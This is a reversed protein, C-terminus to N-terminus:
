VSGKAEGILAVKEIPPLTGLRDVRLLDFVGTIIDEALRKEWAEAERDKHVLLTAHVLRAVSPMEYRFRYIEAIKHAVAEDAFGQGSTIWQHYKDEMIRQCVVFRIVQELWKKEEDAKISKYVGTYNSTIWHFMKKMLSDAVDTLVVLRKVVPKEKTKGKKTTTTVVEGTVFGEVRLFTNWAGYIRHAHITQGDIEKVQEIGHARLCDSFNVGYVFPLASREARAEKEVVSETDAIEM